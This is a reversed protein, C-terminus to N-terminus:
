DVLGSSRRLWEYEDLGVRSIHSAYRNAIRQAYDRKLEGLWEYRNNDASDFYFNGNQIGAFVRKTPERGKFKILKTEYSKYSVYFKLFESKESELIIETKEGNSKKLKLFSFDRAWEVRECDCRPQICLLLFTDEGGRNHKQIITGLTLYPTHKKDAYFRKVTTLISFRKNTDDALKQDNQCLLTPMFNYSANNLKWPIGDVTIDPGTNAKKPWGSEILSIVGERSIVGCVPTKKADDIIEIKFEKHELLKKYDLWLKIADGNAIEEVKESELLSGIESLIIDTTFDGAAEPIPLLARHSVFAADYTDKLNAILQHTNNRIASVSQVAVNSLLGASIKAYEKIIVEPLGEISVSSEEADFHTGNKTYIVIKCHDVAISCREEDVNAEAKSRVFEENKLSDFVTAVQEATYILILRLRKLQSNDGSLIATIIKKAREGNDSYLDWDLIVVDAKKASNLLDGTTEEARDPKLVSCIIGRKSFTNMVKQADLDHEVDLEIDESAPPPDATEEPTSDQELPTFLDIQGTTGIGTLPRKLKKVYETHKNVNTEPFYAEEDIFVATSIFNRVIGETYELFARESM